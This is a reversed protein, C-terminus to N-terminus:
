VIECDKLLLIPHKFIKGYDEANFTHIPVIAKPSIAEVMLKLTDIDAHGSTHISHISFGQSEFYELFKKTYSNSKYGKWM